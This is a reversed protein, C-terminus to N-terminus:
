GSSRNVFDKLPRFSPCKQELKDLDIFNVVKCNHITPVYIPKSRGRRSEERLWEKPRPMREPADVNRIWLSPIVPRIADSDAVIWAELEQVPVVIEYDFRSRGNRVLAARVKAKIEAPDSDDSDHCIIFRTAGRLSLEEMIRCSKRRLQGCGGFGKQLVTCNPIRSIRKVLTVLALADSRDEALVAISM